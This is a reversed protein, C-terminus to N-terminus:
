AIEKAAKGGFHIAARDINGFATAAATLKTKCDRRAEVRSWRM